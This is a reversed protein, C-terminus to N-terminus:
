LWVVQSAAYDENDPVIYAILRHLIARRDPISWRYWHKLIGKLIVQAEEVSLLAGQPNDAQETALSQKLAEIRELEEELEDTTILASTHARIARRRQEDLRAVAGLYDRKPKQERKNARKHCISRLREEVQPFIVAELKVQNYTTRKSCTIPQRYARNCIYYVHTTHTRVYTKAQLWRDCEPCRLLGSFLGWRNTVNMARQTRNRTQDLTMRARKLLEPPIIIPYTGPYQVGGWLRTGEYAPNGIIKLIARSGWGIGSQTTPVGEENLITAVASCSRNEVFLTFILRALDGRVPDEEYGPPDDRWRYGIPSRGGIALGRSLRDHQSRRVRKSLKRVEYRSLGAEFTSFMEREDSDITHHPDDDYDVMIIGYSSLHRQIPIIELPDRSARSQEECWVLDFRDRKSDSLMRMIGERDELKVHTASTALDDYEGVPKLNYRQCYEAFLSRQREPSDEQKATSM